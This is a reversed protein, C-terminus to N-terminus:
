IYFCVPLLLTEHYPELQLDRANVLSRIESEVRMGSAVNRSCEAGYTGSKDLICGLYKFNSAHELRIGNIYVECELGEKGGLVM